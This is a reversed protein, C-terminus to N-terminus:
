AAEDLNVTVVVGQGQSGTTGSATVVVRLADGDALTPSGILTGAELTDDSDASSMTIVGTLQTTWSGGGDSDQQVDVTFQKDGGTPATTVRVEVSKLTGAARAVHLLQTASVVDAGDAQAYNLAHRHQLKDADIAATASVNLDAVVAAPLTSAANTLHTEGSFIIKDEITSTM